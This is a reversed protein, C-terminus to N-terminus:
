QNGPKRNEKGTRQAPLRGKGSSNRGIWPEPKVKLNQGTPDFIRFRADSAFFSPSLQTGAFGHNRFSALRQQEVVTISDSTSVPNPNTPPPRFSQIGFHTPVAVIPVPVRWLRALAKVQTVLEKRRLRKAKFKIQARGDSVRTDSPQNLSMRSLGIGDITRKKCKPVLQRAYDVASYEM